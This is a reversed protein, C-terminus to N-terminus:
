RSPQDLLWATLARAEARRYGGAPARAFPRLARLAEARRGLHVLCLARNYAAEPAFAGGPHAALYDDWARLARAPADAVFHLRHARGYARPEADLVPVPAAAAPQPVVSPISRLAHGGAAGPTATGNAAATTDVWELSSPVPARWGGGATWAASATSLALLAAVGFPLSRRALARRHADRRAGALVRVRTVAGDAPAATLERYVRVIADYSAPARRV